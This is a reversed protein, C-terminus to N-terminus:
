SQPPPIVTRVNFMDTALQHPPPANGSMDNKLLKGILTGYNTLNEAM